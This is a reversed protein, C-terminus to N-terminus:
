VREIACVNFPKLSRIAGDVLELSSSEGAPIELTFRQLLTIFFIFLEMRALSEGVCVRKGAGFPIHADNKKFKGNEDLFRNPNFHDTDEWYRKDYLSSHLFPIVQTGKPITYGRFNIDHLAVHALGITSISAFRQVEHLFADTYPLRARDEMSPCKGPGLVSDIEKQVKEQIERYMLMLKIAWRIILATTDTGGIFLNFITYVLSDMTFNSNPKKANEDIKNLFSDIFDRPCNPDRSAIHDKVLGKLFAQLVRANEFIKNHEGPLWRMIYPYTNYFQFGRKGHFMVNENVMRLLKKFTPDETDFRDGLLISCIVNCVAAYIRDTPNFPKGQKKQFFEVLIKAEETVREEISKKGMGFDTLTTLTFKRQEKWHLGNSFVLGQRHTIREFVPLIARGSFDEAQGILADKLSDYGYLVVAPQPGFYITFVEGYKEGLEMLTKYPASKDMQHLNGILPWPVPGPPLNKRKWSSLFLLLVLATLIGVLLLSLM